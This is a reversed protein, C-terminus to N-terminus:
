RRRVYWYVIALVIGIIAIPPLYAALFGLGFSGLGTGLGRLGGGRGGGGGKTIRFM